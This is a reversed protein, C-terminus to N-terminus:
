QEGRAILLEPRLMWAIIWGEPESLQLCVVSGPRFSVVDDPKGSVLYGVLRSLFPLHGVVLTDLKWDAMQEAFREPSDNPGLGSFEEASRGLAMAGAMLDATQRARRKGSHIVRSIEVGAAKLFDALRSIDARGADSLPRQPDAEKTLAEGHQVLYLRM